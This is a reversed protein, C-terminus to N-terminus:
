DPIFVTAFAFFAYLVVVVISTFEHSFGLLGFFLGYVLMALCFCLLCGTVRALTCRFSNPQDGETPLALGFAVMSGFGILIDYLLFRETELLIQCNDYFLLCFSTAMAICCLNKVTKFVGDAVQNNMVMLTFMSCTMLSIALSDWLENRVLIMALVGVMIAFINRATDSATTTKAAKPSSAAIPKASYSTHQVQSVANSFAPLKKQTTNYVQESKKSITGQSTLIPTDVVAKVAGALARTTAILKLEEENFADAEIRRKFFGMKERTVGDMLATCYSFMVNLDVLLKDFMDARDGIAGCIIEQNKMEESAAEAEAHMAHAKELNENAKMNAGVAKLAMYPAAITAFPTLATACSLAGGNIALALVAGTTVTSSLRSQCVESIERLEMVGHDELIFNRLENIGATEKLEIHKVRDYAVLFQKISTGLVEKKTNGLKLLSNEAKNQVVELSRKANDYMERAEQALEQAEENKRKAKKNMIHSAGLAGLLFPLAM